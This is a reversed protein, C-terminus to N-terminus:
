APADRKGGPPTMRGITATTSHGPALEALIVKGGAAQVLDAGVVESLKYDAGKV